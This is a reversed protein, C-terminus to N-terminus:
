GQRTGAGGMDQRQCHLGGQPRAISMSGIGLAVRGFFLSIQSFMIKGLCTVLAGIPHFSSPNTDITESQSRCSKHVVTFLSVTFFM